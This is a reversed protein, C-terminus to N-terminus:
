TARRQVRPNELITKSNYIGSSHVSTLFLLVLVLLYYLRSTRSIRSSIYGLIVRVEKTVKNHLLSIKMWLGVSKKLTTQGGSLNMLWNNHGAYKM